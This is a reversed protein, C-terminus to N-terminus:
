NTVYSTPARLERGTPVPLIKVWLQAIQRGCTDPLRAGQRNARGIRRLLILFFRRMTHSSNQRSQAHACTTAHVDADPHVAAADKSIM